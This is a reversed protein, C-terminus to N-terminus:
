RGWNSEIEVRSAEERVWSPTHVPWQPRPRLWESRVKEDANLGSVGVRYLTWPARVELGAAARRLDVQLTHPVFVSRGKKDRWPQARRVEIVVSRTDSVTQVTLGGPRPDLMPLPEM